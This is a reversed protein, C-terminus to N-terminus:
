VEEGNNRGKGEVYEIREKLLRTVIRPYETIWEVLLARRQSESLKGRIDPALNVFVVETNPGKSWVVLTEHVDMQLIPDVLYSGIREYPFTAADYKAQAAANMLVITRAVGYETDTAIM